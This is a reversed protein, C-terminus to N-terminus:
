DVGWYGGSNAIGELRRGFKVSGGVFLLVEDGARRGVRLSVRELAEEVDARVEKVEVVWEM